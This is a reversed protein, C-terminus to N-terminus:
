YESGERLQYALEVHELDPKEAKSLDAITWSTRLIKHLGRATIREHDLENHLFTMASKSAQYKTRLERAPIESNIKWSEDSFRSAAVNRAVLVRERINASCEGGEALQTRSVSEVKVRLDIRDLLPGSLKALYRRVQLSSCSCNRGKGVFKGCPCPNAAIVLIFKAPFTLNETARAITISGSEIPQRLSDLIGASCEPAEDIFLIGHHALSVAGPKISHGGGGVMAVRTTTHHPAVFPAMRSLPKRDSNTISHIATVELAEENTLPPLITPMRKAIMTKGVGPPGIMLLNHGGAAAIEAARRASEQGAIDSFDDKTELFPELEIESQTFKEGTSIWHLIEFLKM